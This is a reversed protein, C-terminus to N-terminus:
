GVEVGSECLAGDRHDGCAGVAASVDVVQEPFDDFLAADLLRCSM